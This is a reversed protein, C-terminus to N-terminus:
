SPWLTLTPWWSLWHAVINWCEGTTSLIIISCIHEAINSYCMTVCPEWLLSINLCNVQAILMGKHMFDCKLSKERSERAGIEEKFVAHMRAKSRPFCSERGAM